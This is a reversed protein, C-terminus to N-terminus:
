HSEVTNWHYYTIHGTSVRVWLRRHTPTATPSHLQVTHSITFWFYNRTCIYVTFRCYIESHLQVLKQCHLIHFHTMSRFAIPYFLYDQICCERCCPPLLFSLPPLSTLLTLTNPVAGCFPNTPNCPLTLCESLEPLCPCSLQPSICEGM